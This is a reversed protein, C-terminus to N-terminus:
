PPPPPPLPKPKVRGLADFPVWVDDSELYAVVDVARDLIGGPEVVVRALVAVKRDLM